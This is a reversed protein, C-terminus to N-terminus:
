KYWITIVAYSGPTTSGIQDCDVTLFGLGAVPINVASGANDVGSGINVKASSFITTGSRNIDFIAAPTGGIPAVDLWCGISKITITRTPLAIKAKGTHVTLVGPITYVFCFPAETDITIPSQFDPM